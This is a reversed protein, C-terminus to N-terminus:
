KTVPNSCTRSFGQFIPKQPRQFYDQFSWKTKFTKPNSTLPDQFDKM